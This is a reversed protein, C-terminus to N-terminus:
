EGSCVVNLHRFGELDMKKLGPQRVGPTGSVQLGVQTVHQCGTEFVFCFSSVLLVVMVVVVVVVM